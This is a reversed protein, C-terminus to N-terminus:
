NKREKSTFDSTNSPIHDHCDTNKSNKPLL